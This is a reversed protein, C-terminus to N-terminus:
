QLRQGIQVSEIAARGTRTGSSNHQGQEGVLVADHDLLAHNFIIGSGTLAGTILLAIAGCIAAVNSSPEPVVAHTAAAAQGLNRQWALFDAGDSDADNDADSGGGVAFDSRWRALDVGNVVNNKDFDGPISPVGVALINDVGLTASIGPGRNNPTNSHLLRLVVVNSMVTSYADEGDVLTLDTASLPFNVSTWGSGAPLNVPNLSAFWSGGNTPAAVTGFVVRLKLDNPGFNNVSMSISTVGATLYDGAWTTVNFAVIGKHSGSADAVIQMYPDGLGAPGGGVARTLGLDGIPDRGQTWGELDASFADFEGISIASARSLPLHAILTAALLPLWRRTRSARM